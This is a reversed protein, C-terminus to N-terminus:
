KTGLLANQPKTTPAYYGQKTRLKLKPTNKPPNVRVQVKRWAGNLEQNSPRYGITYQNRLDRAIRSCVKEVENINKPFFSAGGTVEALQKLVGKAADNPSGYTWSYSTLLGITYLSIKSENVAKLADKLQYKSSNDEGDTVVILVKKEHVSEHELYNAALVIADYLATASSSRMSALSRSLERTDRTFEQDLSVGEGFSVISTEDDRNSERVFTMAAAQVRDRKDKMSDSADIVLGVSLPIDEQKFLTINQQVKDEYVAFHEPLLGRFPNGDKDLVSVPLVVLEVDVTLQYDKDKDQIPQASSLTVAVLLISALLCRIMKM